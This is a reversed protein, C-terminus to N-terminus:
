PCSVGYSHFVDTDGCDSCRLKLKYDYDRTWSPCDVYPSTQTTDIPTGWNLSGNVRRWIDVKPSQCTGQPLASWTFEVCDVSDIVICVMSVQDFDCSEQSSAPSSLWGTIVSVCVLVLLMGSWVRM